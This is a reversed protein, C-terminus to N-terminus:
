VSEANLLLLLPRLVVAPSLATAHNATTAAWRSRRFSTRSRCVVMTIESTGARLLVAAMVGARDLIGVPFPFVMVAGDSLAAEYFDAGDLWFRKEMDWLTEAIETM